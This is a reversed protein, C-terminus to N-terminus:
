AAVAGAPQEVAIEDASVLPIPRELMRRCQGRVAEGAGVVLAVAAFLVILTVM